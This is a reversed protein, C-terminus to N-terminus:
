HRVIVADGSNFVAMEDTKGWCSEPVVLATGLVAEVAKENFYGGGGSVHDGPRVETGDVLKLSSRDDAITTGAPWVVPYRDEGSSLRYCAEVVVIGSVIAAM